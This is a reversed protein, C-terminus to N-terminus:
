RRAMRSAERAARSTKSNHKHGVCVRPAKTTTTTTTAKRKTTTTAKTTTTTAKKTETATAAAVRSRKGRDPHNEQDSRHMGADTSATASLRTNPDSQTSRTAAEAEAEAGRVFGELLDVDAMTVDELPSDPVVDWAEAKPCPPLMSKFALERVDLLCNLRTLDWGPGEVDVDVDVAPLVPTAPTMTMRKPKRAQSAQERGGEETANRKRKTTRKKKGSGAPGSTARAVPAEAQGVGPRARLGPVPKSEYEGGHFRPNQTRNRGQRDHGDDHATRHTLFTLINRSPNYPFKSIRSQCLRSTSPARVGFGPGKADVTANKDCLRAFPAGCASFVRVSSRTESRICNAAPGNNEVNDM